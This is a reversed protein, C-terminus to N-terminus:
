TNRKGNANSNNTMTTTTTTWPSSPVVKPSEEKLQTQKMLSDLDKLAAYRDESPPANLGNKYNSTNYLGFSQNFSSSLDTDLFIIFFNLKKFKERETSLLVPTCFFHERVIPPISPLITILTPSRHSRCSLNHSDHRQCRLKSPIPFKASIQSSNRLLLMWPNRHIKTRRVRRQCPQLHVLKHYEQSVRSVRDLIRLKVRRIRM